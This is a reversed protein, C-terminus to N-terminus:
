FAGAQKTSEALLCLGGRAACVNSIDLACSKKSSVTLTLRDLSYLLASSMPVPAGAISLPLLPNRTVPRHVATFYMDVIPLVTVVLVPAQGAAPLKLVLSVITSVPGVELELWYM